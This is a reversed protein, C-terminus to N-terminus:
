PMFIPFVPGANLTQGGLVDVAVSTRPNNEDKWPSTWHGFGTLTLILQGNKNPFSAEGENFDFTTYSNNANIAVHGNLFFNHVHRPIIEGARTLNAWAGISLNRDIKMGIREPQSELYNIIDYIGKYFVKFLDHLKKQKILFINWETWRSTLDNQQYTIQKPELEMIKPEFDCIFKHIYELDLPIGHEDRDLVCVPIDHHLQIM